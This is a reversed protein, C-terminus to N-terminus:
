GPLRQVSPLKRQVARRHQLAGVGPAIPSEDDTFPVQMARAAPLL